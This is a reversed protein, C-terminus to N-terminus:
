PNRARRAYWACIVGLIMHMVISAIIWTPNPAKPAPANSLPVVIWTMTAYLLLGYPLGYRVPHRLLTAFRLGVLYYALVMTTAIFYHCAAGLLASSVGGAFAATGQVGAAISQLIRMPPVGHSLSWFSCAFILDLTGMVLGGTILNRWASSRAPVFIATM